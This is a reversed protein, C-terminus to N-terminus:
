EPGNYRSAADNRPSGGSTRSYMDGRDYMGGSYMGQPQNIGYRGQGYLRSRGRQRRLQDMEQDYSNGYARQFEQNNRGRNYMGGRNYLGNRYPDMIDDYMGGRNYTGYGQSMPSRVYRGPDM